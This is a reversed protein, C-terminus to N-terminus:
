RSAPRIWSWATPMGATWGDVSRGVLQTAGAQVGAIDLVERLRVRDMERQGRPQRRDRQERLRDDRVARVAADGAARGVDADDRPRGHRPDPAAVHRQRRDAHPARHRDPLLPREAHRDAHPRRGGACPGRWGSTRCRGRIPAPDRRQGGGTRREAPGSMPRRGVPWRRSGSRRVRSSCTEVAGTPCAAAPGRDREANTQMLWSM